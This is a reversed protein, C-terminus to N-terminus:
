INEAKQVFEWSDELALSELLEMDRDPYTQNRSPYKHMIKENTADIHESKVSLSIPSLRSSSCHRVCMSAPDMLLLSIVLNHGRDQALALPTRSSTTEAHIDAGSSILVEVVREHGYAAACHLATWGDSNLDEGISGSEQPTEFGEIGYLAAAHAAFPNVMDMHLSRLTKSGKEPSSLSEMPIATNQFTEAPRRADSCPGTINFNRIKGNSECVECIATVRSLEQHGYYLWQLREWHSESYTSKPYTQDLAHDEGMLQDAQLLWVVREIDDISTSLHLPTEWILNMTINPDAGAKLLEVVVEIHGSLAALHLPTSRSTSTATNLQAGHELLLRVVEVHGYFSAVHLATRGELDTDDVSAGAGLLVEMLRPRNNAVALHLSRASRSQPIANLDSGMDLYISLLTEFGYHASIGFIIGHFNVTHGATKRGWRFEKQHNDIKHHLYDQLMGVLYQSRAEAIRYHVDWNERAYGLIASGSSPLDVDNASTKLGYNSSQLQENLILDQLCTLAMLEHAQFYDVRYWRSTTDAATSILYDGVSRHALHVTQDQQITVLGGFLGLISYDLVQSDDRPSFTANQVASPQTSGITLAMSLERLTLPRRAYLVWLLLLSTTSQYQSPISELCQCYVDELSSPLVNAAPSRNGAGRLKENRLREVILRVWLFPPAPKATLLYTIRQIQETCDTLRELLRINQDQIYLVMDKQVALQDDLSIKWVFALPFQSNFNNRSTVICKIPRFDHTRTSVELIGSAIENELLPYDDLADFIILTPVNRPILDLLSMLLRKFMHPTLKTNGSLATCMRHLRSDVSSSLSQRSVGEIIMRLFETSPDRMGHCNDYSFSFVHNLRHGLSKSIFSSLTSKGAGPKGHIWFLGPGSLDGRWAQYEQRELIWQCTGPYWSLSEKAHNSHSFELPLLANCQTGINM